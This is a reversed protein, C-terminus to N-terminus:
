TTDVAEMNLAISAVRIPILTYGTLPEYIGPRSAAGETLSYTARGM